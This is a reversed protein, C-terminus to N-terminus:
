LGAVDGSAVKLSSNLLRMITNTQNTRARRIAKAKNSKMRMIKLLRLLM